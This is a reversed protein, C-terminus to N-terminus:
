WKSDEFSDINLTKRAEYLRVAYTLLLGTVGLGIVIATLVLAQPLPDTVMAFAKEAPVTSDIIPATKGPLYGLAVLIVHTGTDIVSFGIIMRFLNKQSIIGWIGIIILSVGTLLALTNLM